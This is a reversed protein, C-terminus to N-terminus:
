RSHLFRQSYSRFYKKTRIYFRYYGNEEVAFKVTAPKVPTGAGDAMLYGQGMEAVFQTDKIFGGYDDFELADIWITQM